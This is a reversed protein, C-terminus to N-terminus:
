SNMEKTAPEYPHTPDYQPYHRVDRNRGPGHWVGRGAPAGDPGLVFKDTPAAVPDTAALTYVTTTLKSTHPDIYQAQGTSGDVVALSGALYDRSLCINNVGLQPLDFQVPRHYHGHVHIHPYTARVLASIYATNVDSDAWADSRAASTRRDGLYKDELVALGERTTDHSVLVDIGSEMVRMANALDTDTIAEEPFYNVGRTFRARGVTIAGGFFGVIHEGVRRISGRRMYVVRPSLYVTGYPEDEDRAGDFRFPNDDHERVARGLVNFDEHNGDVFLVRVRAPDCTDHRAYATDISSEIMSLQHPTYTNFDGVQIVTEVGLRAATAIGRAIHAPKGHTDGVFVAPIHAATIQGTLM